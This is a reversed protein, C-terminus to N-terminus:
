KQGFLGKTARTGYVKVINQQDDGLAMALESARWGQEKATELRVTRIHEYAKAASIGQAKLKKLATRLKAGHAM